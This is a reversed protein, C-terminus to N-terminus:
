SEHEEGDHDFMNMVMAELSSRFKKPDKEKHADFHEGAMAHDLHESASANVMKDSPKEQEMRPPRFKIRSLGM